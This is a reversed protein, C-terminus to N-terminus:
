QARCCALLTLSPMRLPISHHPDQLVCGQVGLGLSTATTEIQRLCGREAIAMMMAGNANVHATTLTHHLTRAMRLAESVRATQEQLSQRAAVTEDLVQLIRELPDIELEVSPPPDTAPRKRSM